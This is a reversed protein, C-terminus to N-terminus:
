MRRPCCTTWSAQSPCAPYLRVLDFFTSIIIMHRDSRLRHLMLSGDVHCAIAAVSPMLARASGGPRMCGCHMRLEGVHQGLKTYIGGNAFCLALLRDAGRQHCGALAAERAAGELGKLSAKYDTVICAATWVDRALRTPVLYAMRAVAAPSDAQGFVWSTAGAGLAVKVITSM